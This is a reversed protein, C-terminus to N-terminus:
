ARRWSLALGVTAGVIALPIALVVIEARTAPNRLTAAVDALSELSGDGLMLGLLVLGTITVLGAGIMVNRITRSQM